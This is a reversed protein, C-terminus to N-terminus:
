NPEFFDLTGLEKTAVSELCRKVPLIVEGLVQDPSKNDVDVKLWTEKSIDMVQEYQLRVLDQLEKTEFREEGFGVRQHQFDRGLELYIVLDPRPLGREM